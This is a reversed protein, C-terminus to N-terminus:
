KSPTRNFSVPCFDLNLKKMNIEVFFCKISGSKIPVYTKEGGWGEGLKQFEQNHKKKRSFEYIHTLKRLNAIFHKPNSIVGGGKPM